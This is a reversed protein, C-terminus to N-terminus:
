AHAERPQTSALLLVAGFLTGVLTASRGTPHTGTM